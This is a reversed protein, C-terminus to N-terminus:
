LQRTPKLEVLLQDLRRKLQVVDLKMHERRLKAKAQDGMERSDLV